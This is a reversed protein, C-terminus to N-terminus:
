KAYVWMICTDYWEVHLNHKELWENFRNSGWYNLDYHIHTIEDESSPCYEACILLIHTDGSEDNEDNEDNEDCFGSWKGKWQHKQFIEENKNHFTNFDAIIEDINNMKKM